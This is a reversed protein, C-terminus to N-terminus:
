SCNSTAQVSIVRHNKIWFSISILFVDHHYMISYHKRCAVEELPWSMDLLVEAGSLGHCRLVKAPAFGRSIAVIAVIAIDKLRSTTTEGPGCAWCSIQLEICSASLLSSVSPEWVPRQMSAVHPIEPCNAVHFTMLNWTCCQLDGVGGNTFQGFMECSNVVMWLVSANCTGCM